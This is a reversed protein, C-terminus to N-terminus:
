PEGQDYLTRTEIDWHSFGLMDERIQKTPAQLQAGLFAGVILKGQDDM